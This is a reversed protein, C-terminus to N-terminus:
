VQKKWLTGVQKDCLIKSRYSNAGSDRPVGWGGHNLLLWVPIVLNTSLIQPPALITGSWIMLVVQALRYNFARCALIGGPGLWVDAHPSDTPLSCISLSQPFVAHSSLTQPFADQVSTNEVSFRSICRAGSVNRSCARRVSSSTPGQYLSVTKAAALRRLGM